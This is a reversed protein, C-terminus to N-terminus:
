EGKIEVRLLKAETMDCVVHKTWDFKHGQVAPTEATWEVIEGVGGYLEQQNKVNM